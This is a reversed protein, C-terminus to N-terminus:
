AWAEIMERLKVVHQQEEAKLAAFIKRAEDSKSKDALEDYLLISDKEAQMAVSLIADITKLNAITKASEEAKPFVHGAALASLYAATKADFTIECESKNQQVKNFVKQFKEMHHTEEDRLLLFLEKHEDKKSQSYAQQYFEHGRKEIEIAVQLGDLENLLKNEM